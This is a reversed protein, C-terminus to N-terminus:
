DMLWAVRTIFAIVDWGVNETRVFRDLDFEQPILASKDISEKM